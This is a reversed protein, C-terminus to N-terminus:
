ERCLQLNCWFVADANIAMVRKWEEDSVNQTRLSGGASGASCVLVNIRGLEAAAAAVAAEVDSSASVDGTLALTGAPGSAELDFTAVKAGEAM